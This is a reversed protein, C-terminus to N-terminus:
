GDGCCIYVPRVADSARRFWCRGEVGELIAEGGTTPAYLDGGTSSFTTIGSIVGMRRPLGALPAAFWMDDRGLGDGKLVVPSGNAAKSEVGSFPLETATSSM